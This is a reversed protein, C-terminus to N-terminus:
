KYRRRKQESYSMSDVIEAREKSKGWEKMAEMYSLGEARRRTIYEKMAGALPGENPKRPKKETEQKKKSAAKKDKKKTKEKKEPKKGERKKNAADAMKMEKELRKAAALQSKKMPNPIPPPTMEMDPFKDVLRCPTTDPQPAFAPAYASTPAGDYADREWDMLERALQHDRSCPDDELEDIVVDKPFENSLTPDCRFM